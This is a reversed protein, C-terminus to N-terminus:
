KGLFGSYGIGLWHQIEQFTQERNGQFESQQMACIEGFPPEFGDGEIGVAEGFVADTSGDFSVIQGVVQSRGERKEIQVFQRQDVTRVLVSRMEVGRIVM